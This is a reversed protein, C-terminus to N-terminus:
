AFSRPWRRRKLRDLEAEIRTGEYFSLFGHLVLEDGAAADPFQPDSHMCPCPPNAWTRHCQEWATIIWRSGGADRCAIFPPESRKNDNTQDEFGAARALMVCVQVRLDTLTESTGNHLGLSMRVEGAAPAARASFRIGNPLTREGELVGRPLRRWEQPELAIGQADWITPIHSHALYTLGLNSWIAEPLDIVVYSAPDWPTFVSIKTERQPEVAGDLFGIRPHRGGPYPLISLRGGTTPEPRTGPHIGFRDRAGTIEDPNLGTAAAIEEDSFGHDWVMSRLWYGLEPPTEPRRAM